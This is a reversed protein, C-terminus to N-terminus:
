LNSGFVKIIKVIISEAPLNNRKFIQQNSSSICKFIELISGNFITNIPLFDCGLRCKLAEGEVDANPM